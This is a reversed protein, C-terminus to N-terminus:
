EKEKTNDEFYSCRNENFAKGTNSTENNLMNGQELDLM